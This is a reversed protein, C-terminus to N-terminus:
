IFRGPAIKFIEGLRYATKRSIPKLNHEMNSIKQKSVELQEALQVQSMKHLKRYFLLTDGPTEEAKMERYWEMETVPVQENDDEGTIAVAAGYDKQILDIYKEPINGQIIIETPPKKVAVLM